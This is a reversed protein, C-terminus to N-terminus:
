LKFEFYNVKQYSFTDKFNKAHSLLLQSVLTVNLLIQPLPTGNMDNQEKKIIQLLEEPLLDICM